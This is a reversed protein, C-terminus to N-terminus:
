YAWRLMFGKYQTSTALDIKFSKPGEPLQTMTTHRRWIDNTFTARIRWLPVSFLPCTPSLQPKARIILSYTPFSMCGYNSNYTFLFDYVTQRITDNETVM